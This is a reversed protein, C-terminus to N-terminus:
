YTRYVSPIFSVFLTSIAAVVLFFLVLYFLTSLKISKM